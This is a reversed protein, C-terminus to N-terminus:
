ERGLVGVLAHPQPDFWRGGGESRRAREQRGHDHDTGASAQRGKAGEDLLSIVVPLESSTRVLRNSAKRAETSLLTLTCLSPRRSRTRRQSGCRSCPNSRGFRTPSTCSRPSRACTCLRRVRGTSCAIRAVSCAQASAAAPAGARAGPLRTKRRQTRARVGVICRWDRARSQRIRVVHTEEHALDAPCIGLSTRSARTCHKVVSHCCRRSDCRVGSSASANTRWSSFLARYTVSVHCYRVM